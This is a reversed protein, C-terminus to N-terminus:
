GTLTNAKQFLKIKSRINGPIQKNRKFLERRHTYRSYRAPEKRHHKGPHRCVNRTVVCRVAPNTERAPATRRAARM